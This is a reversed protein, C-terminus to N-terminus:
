GRSRYYPNVRVYGGTSSKRTYGSIPKTRPQGNVSSTKGYDQYASKQTYAEVNAFGLVATAALLLSIIKSKM